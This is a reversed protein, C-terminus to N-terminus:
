PRRSPGSEMVIPWERCDDLLRGSVGIASLQHSVRVADKSRHPPREPILASSLVLATLAAMLVCGVILQQRVAREHSDIALYSIARAAFFITADPLAFLMIEGRSASRDFLPTVFLTANILPAIVLSILPWRRGPYESGVKAMMVLCIGACAVRYTTDFPVGTVNDLMIGFCVFLVIGVIALGARGIGSKLARGRRCPREAGPARQCTHGSEVLGPCQARHDRSHGSHGIASM